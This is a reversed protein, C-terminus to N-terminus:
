YESQLHWEDSGDERSLSVTVGHETIHDGRDTDMGGNVTILVGSAPVDLSIDFWYVRLDGRIFEPTIPTSDANTIGENEYTDQVDNCLAALIAEQRDYAAHLAEVTLALADEPSADGIGDVNVTDPCANGFPPLACPFATLEKKVDDYDFTLTGLREDTVTHRTVHAARYTEQRRTKRLDSLRSAAVTIGWWLAILGAPFWLYSFGNIRLWLVFFVHELVLLIFWLGLLCEKVNFLFRQLRRRTFNKM